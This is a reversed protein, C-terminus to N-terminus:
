RGTSVSDIFTKELNTWGKKHGSLTQDSYTLQTHNAATKKGRLFNTSRKAIKVMFNQTEVPIVDVLHNFNNCFHNIADVKYRVFSNSHYLSSLSPRSTMSFKDATTPEDSNIDVADFFKFFFLKFITTKDDPHYCVVM